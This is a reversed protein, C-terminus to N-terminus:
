TEQFGVFNFKLFLIDGGVLLIPFPHTLVDRFVAPWRTPVRQRGPEEVVAAVKPYAKASARGSQEDWEKGAAM